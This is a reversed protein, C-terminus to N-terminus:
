GDSQETAKRPTALAAGVAGRNVFLAVAALFLPIAAAALAFSFGGEFRVLWSVLMPGAIQGAAFAATMAAMLMRAHAGAVRRAEQMGAMTNVMFSGGVCVAAIVIGALGPLVIPVLVGVAMVVNGLTWVARQGIVQSARSAVLTSLLAAVGFVPWAWGFWTSDAIVQRAMAPLFTAPIIYGFGFAGYCLVLRWFEPVDRRSAKVGVQASAAKGDVALANWLVATMLVATLGLVIWATASSAGSQLLVVCALGAFVLGTGVGAYLVGGLDSRGNNALKELAWASVGVLVWASAVGALARLVLWGLFRHEFGMALTACAIVILGARIALRPRMEERMASVAGVLYGFYNASALWGGQAVTVGLDEQMLPLIPTFAFRGIGM